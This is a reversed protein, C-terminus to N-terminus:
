ISSPLFLYFRGLSNMRGAIEAAEEGAGIFLDVRGPGRISGGTDQNVVFRSFRLEESDPGPM